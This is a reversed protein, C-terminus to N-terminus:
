ATCFALLVASPAPSAGVAALALLLSLYDFGWRGATALLAELWRESLTDRIFDRERLLREPWDSLPPRSRRRLRNRLRQLTRGMWRLPRDTFLMVGGAAILVVLVAAGGWAARALHEDIRRSGFLVAPLALAPLALVIGTTLLGAATLGRAIAPRALGAQLLMAYQLASGTAGGGPVLRAAANSALQSTVVAFWGRVDLTIRLIVWFSVFAGLQALVILQLLLPDLRKVDPWSGFAALVAPGVLYLSVGTVGLALFRRLVRRPPKRAPAGAQGQVSSM